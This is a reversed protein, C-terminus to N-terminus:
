LPRGRLTQWARACSGARASALSASCRACTGNSPAPASSCSPGIEPNSLGDAALQAIQVEQATFEYRTQAARKRVTEGTALLERRAREGFAEMGMATFGEYAAQTAARTGRRNERRLWEAYLLHARPWPPACAPAASAAPDGRPPSTRPSEGDRVTGHRTEVGSGVRDQGQTREILRELGRGGAGGQRWSWGGGGTRAAVIGLADARRPRQDGRQASRTGNSLPGRRQPVRGARTRRLQAGGGRGPRPGRSAPRSSCRHRRRTAGFHRWSCDESCSPRPVPPM